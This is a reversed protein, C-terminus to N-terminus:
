QGGASEGVAARAGAVSLVAAGRVRGARLRALAENAAALPFREVETRVGARPALALLEEGDKRTLKLDDGMAEVVGVIQHGPVVPRGLPPLEGDVVHLDTRCVGCAKVRLRVQGPGPVPTEREAEVLPTAPRELVM